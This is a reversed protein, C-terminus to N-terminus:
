MPYFFLIIVTTLIVTTKIYKQNDMNPMFQTNSQEIVQIISMISQRIELGLEDHRASQITIEVQIKEILGNLIAYM